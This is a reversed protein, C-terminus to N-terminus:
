AVIGCGHLSFLLIMFSSCSLGIFVLYPSHSSLLPSSSADDVADRFKALRERNRSVSQIGEWPRSRGKLCGRISEGVGRGECVLIM